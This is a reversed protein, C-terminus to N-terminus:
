RNGGFDMRVNEMEETLELVHRSLLANKKDLEALKTFQRRALNVLFEVDDRTVAPGVAPEGPTSNLKHHISELRDEDTMMMSWVIVKFTPPAAQFALSSVDLRM